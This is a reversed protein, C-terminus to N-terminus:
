GKCRDRLLRAYVEYTAEFQERISPIKSAARVADTRVTQRDVRVRALMRRIARACAAADGAVYRESFAGDVLEAAGGADPVVSPLGVSMAEAVAFGFTEYPCGHVLVDASALAAALKGRDREFGMLRVGGGLARARAEIAPREPGDGFLALVCPTDKRVAEFADLVVEWQKEVAFRGVGVLLAAGPPGSYEALLAGRVADSRALPSFASREVGFPLRLVRPVGHFVLKEEMWKAAVFTADCRSAIFRVMSWLPELLVTAAKRPTRAGRELMVRLYTDIFDAHWVFTRVGFHRRPVSLCAAAAAYPSDIELVDPSERVAISRLKDLRWLLHYTPDYPLPPGAIRLVRPAARGVQLPESAVPEDCDRPGPAVVVHEHGLQCSVHGKHTLHSRVGGGRESYFETASLVKM